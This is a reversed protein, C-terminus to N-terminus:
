IAAVSRAEEALGDLFRAVPKTRKLTPRCVLRVDLAPVRGGRRRPPRPGGRAARSRPRPRDGAGPPRLRAAALRQPRRDDVGPAPADPRAARRPRAPRPQRRGPAAAARARPPRPDAARKGRAARPAVWHFRQRCLTTEDPGAARDTSVIAVDVQGDTVLRAAEISNTTTIEFRLPAGDAFLQRLVPLLLAEGLYDSAAVRLTTVRGAGGLEELLGGLSAAEDFLRTLGGLAAEGAPSLRLGRGQKEFLAVGLQDDIRRLQQSVASTSKGLRRAAEGVSGTQAVVLADHLAPILSPDM